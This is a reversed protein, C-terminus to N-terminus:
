RKRHYGIHGEKANHEKQDSETITDKNSKYTQGEQSIFSKKEAGLIM